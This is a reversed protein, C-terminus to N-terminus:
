ASMELFGDRIRFPESFLTTRLPNPNIDWELWPDRTLTTLHATLAMGPASGLFHPCLRKGRGEVTDRLRLADTFCCNKVVAPQVMHLALGSSNLTLGGAGERTFDSGPPILFNEGASIPLPTRAFLEPYRHQEEICLPEELWAIGQDALYGAWEMTKDFPWSRNVDVAVRAGDGLLRQLARINERDEADGYGLKLKFVDLGADRAELISDELFPPNIGSGYMKVTRAPEADFLNGITVGRLRARIDWLAAEVACLAQMAPGLTASQLGARYNRNWLGRVFGPIDGIEKGVIAPFYGDRFAAMRENPAWIPFNIWSEGVGTVGDENTLEIVVAQRHTMAGFTTRYPKELPAKLHFVAAETIKLPIVSEAFM